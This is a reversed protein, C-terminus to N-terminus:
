NVSLNTERKKMTATKIVVTLKWYMLYLVQPQCVGVMPCRQHLNGLWIQYLQFVNIQRHMVTMKLWLINNQVVIYLASAVWINCGKKVYVGQRRLMDRIERRTSASLEISNKKRVTRWIMQMASPHLNITGITSSTISQVVSHLISKNLVIQTM